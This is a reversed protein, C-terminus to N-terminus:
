SREARHSAHRGPPRLGASPGPVLTFPAPTTAAAHWAEAARAASAYSTRSLTRVPIELTLEAEAFPFPDVGVVGPALVAATLVTHEGARGLPVADVTRPGAPQELAGLTSQVRRAPAAPDSPRALDVLCLYLSLLDLAQLVEYAHWLDAEFVSLPGHHGWLELATARWRRESASAM